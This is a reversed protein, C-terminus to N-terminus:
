LGGGEPLRGVARPVGVLELAQDRRAAPGSISLWGWGEGDGFPLSVMHRDPVLGSLDHDRLGGVTRRWGWRQVRAAARPFAYGASARRCATPPRCVAPDLQVPPRLHSGMRSRASGFQTTHPSSAWMGADELTGGARGYWRPGVALPLAWFGISCSRRGTVPLGRLHQDLGDKLVWMIASARRM